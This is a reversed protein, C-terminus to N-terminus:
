TAAHKPRKDAHRSVLLDERCPIYYMVKRRLKLIEFTVSFPSQM